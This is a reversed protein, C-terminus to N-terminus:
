IEKEFDHVECLRLLFTLANWVSVWCTWRM